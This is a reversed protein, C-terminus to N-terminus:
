PGLSGLHGLLCGAPLPRPFLKLSKELLEGLKGILDGVEGSLGEIPFHDVVVM